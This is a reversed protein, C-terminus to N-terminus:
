RWKHSSCMLLRASPTSPPFPHPQSHIHCRLRHPPKFHPPNNSPILLRFPLLTSSLLLLNLPLLTSSLLLLNFPLLTSSLLPLKFQLRLKL